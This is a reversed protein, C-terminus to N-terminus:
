EGRQKSGARKSFRATVMDLLGMIGGPIFIITLLLAAGYV